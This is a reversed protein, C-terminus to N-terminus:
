MFWLTLVSVGIYLVDMVFINTPVDGKQGFISFNYGHSRMASSSYQM